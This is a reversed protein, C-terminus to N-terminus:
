YPEAASRGRSARSGPCRARPSAGAAPWSRATGPGPKPRGAPSQQASCTAAATSSEGSSAGCEKGCTTGSFASREPPRPGTARATTPCDTPSNPAKRKLVRGRPAARIARPSLADGAGGRLSGSMKLGRRGGSIGKREALNQLVLLPRPSQRFFRPQRPWDAWNGAGRANGSRFRRRRQPRRSCRGANGRGAPGPARPEAAGATWGARPGIRPGACARTLKKAARRPAPRAERRGDPIKGRAPGPARPRDPGASRANGRLAGPLPGAGPGGPQERICGRGRRGAKRAADRVFM